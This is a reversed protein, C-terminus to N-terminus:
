LAAFSSLDCFVNVRRYLLATLSKNETEKVLLFTFHMTFPLFIGDKWIRWVNKFHSHKNSFAVKRVKNSIHVSHDRFVKKKTEHFSRGSADLLFVPSFLKFLIHM